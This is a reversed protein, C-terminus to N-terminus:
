KFASVASSEDPHIDFVKDLRTLEFIIRVKQQLKCLGLKGGAKKALKMGQVLVALGSSDIFTVDKLNVVVNAPAKDTAKKIMERVDASNQAEFRGNLMLVTIGNSTHSKIDM